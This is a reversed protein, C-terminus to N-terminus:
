IVRVMETGQKMPQYGMSTTFADMRNHMNKEAGVTTSSKGSNTKYQVTKANLRKMREMTTVQERNVSRLSDQLYMSQDNDRRYISNQRKDQTESAKDKNDITNVIHGRKASYYAEIRTSM